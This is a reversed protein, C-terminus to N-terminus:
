RYTYLIGAAVCIVLIWVNNGMLELGEAIGSFIPPLKLQGKELRNLRKDIGRSTDGVKWLIHRTAAVLGIIVSASSITLASLIGANERAWLKIRTLKRNDERTILKRRTVRDRLNLLENLKSERQYDGALMRVYRLELSKERFGNDEENTFVMENLLIDGRDLLEEYSLNSLDPFMNRLQERTRKQQSGGEEADVVKKRRLERVYNIEREIDLREEETEGERLDKELIGIEDFLGKLDMDEYNPYTERLEEMARDDYEEPEVEM